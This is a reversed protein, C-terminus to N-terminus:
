REGPLPPRPGIDEPRRVRLPRMYSPDNRDRSPPGGSNLLERLQSSLPSPGPEGHWDSLCLRAAIAWRDNRKEFRDIYRGGSLTLPAGDKNMAAFYYYTEAHAVAGDIECTHNTIVHQTSYQNAEHYALLEAAFYERNGVWIGHDDIADEHYVTMLLERDLRDMARCYTHLCDLIAQRDLLYTVAKALQDSTM